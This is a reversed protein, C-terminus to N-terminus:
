KNKAESIAKKLADLYETNMVNEGNEDKVPMGNEDVTLAPCCWGGEDHENWAYTIASFPVNKERENHMKEFVSRAHNYLEQGNPSESCRGNYDGAWTVPNKARPSANRGCSVLPIVDINKYYAYQEENQKETLQAHAVYDTTSAISGCAYASIANIGKKHLENIIFPSCKSAMGVLYLEEKVGAKKASNKIDEILSAEIRFADYLFVVPRNDFRLYCSQTFAQGLSLISKEDLKNVGVMASMLIDNKYKSTLHQKRAYSMPNDDGYWCYAFYDIGADIALRAEKDFQEQTEPPFAVKNEDIVKTFFPALKHFEKPSLSRAVQNSVFSKPLDTEMYADWRIAGFTFSKQPTIPTVTADTVTKSAQAEEIIFEKVLFDALNDFDNQQIFYNIVSVVKAGAPIELKLNFETWDKDNVMRSVGLNYMTYNLDLYEITYKHAIIFPIEKDCKKLKIKAQVQYAEKVGLIKDAYVAFSAYKEKRNEVFVMGDEYRITADGEGFVNEKIIPLNFNQIVDM